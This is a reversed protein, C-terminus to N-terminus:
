LLTMEERLTYKTCLVYRSEMARATQRGVGVGVEYLNPDTSVGDWFLLVHFSSVSLSAVSSAVWAASVHPQPTWHSLHWIFKIDIM